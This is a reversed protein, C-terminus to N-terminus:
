KNDLIWQLFKFAGLSYKENNDDKAFESYYERLLQNNDKKIQKNIFGILNKSDDIINEKDIHKQLEM